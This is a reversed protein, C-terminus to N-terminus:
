PCPHRVGDFGLYTGSAPDYSKYRQECAGSADGVANANYGASDYGNQSAIAGGILAGTAVAAVGVAVDNRGYGYGYGYRYGNGYGRGYAYGPRYAGGYGRHQVDVRAAGPARAPHSHCPQGVACNAQASAPISPLVFASAIAAGIFLLNKM